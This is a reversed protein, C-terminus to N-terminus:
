VISANYESKNGKSLPSSFWQSESSFIEPVSYNIEEEGKSKEYKTSANLDQSWMLLELKIVPLELSM